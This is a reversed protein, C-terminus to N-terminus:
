YLETYFFEFQRNETLLIFEMSCYEENQLDLAMPIIRLKYINTVQILLLESTSLLPQLLIKETNM